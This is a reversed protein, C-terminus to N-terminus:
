THKSAEQAKFYGQPPNPLDILVHYAAQSVPCPLCLVYLSSHKRAKFSRARTVTGWAESTRSNM